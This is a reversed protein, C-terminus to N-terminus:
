YTWMSSTELRITKELVEVVGRVITVQTGSVEANDWDPGVVTVERTWVAGDPQIDGGAQVVRYWKHVRVPGMPTPPVTSADVVVKDGSFMVWDGSRLELDDAPRGPRTALVVDGGAFAPSGSYFIVAQVVREGIESEPLPDGNVPNFLDVARRHLVIVSLTYEDTLVHGAPQQFVRDLRPVVTAMWSLNGESSLKLPVAPAANQYMFNQVPGLTRDGPLDFILDDDSLFLERAVIPALVVNPTSVSALTIRPMALLSNDYNWNAPFRNRAAVQAAYSGQAPDARSIFHPDL